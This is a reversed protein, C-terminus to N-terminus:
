KDLIWENGTWVKNHKEKMVFALWLQEMSITAHNETFAGQLIITDYFDSVLKDFGWRTKHTVVMEQLQDQRPLWIPNEGRLWKGDEDHYGTVIVGHADGWVFDDTCGDWLSQIEECDCMKIYTESTDHM